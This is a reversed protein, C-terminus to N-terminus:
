NKEKPRLVLLPIPSSRLVKDAVSGLLARRLGGRGHTAIAVLDAELSEALETIAEAVSEAAGVHIDVDLGRRKLDGAIKELYEEGSLMAPELVSPLVPYIAPGFVTRTPIVHALTLSAGTTEALDAAPELVAEALASGDLPVLIHEFTLVDAPVGEPQEPHIVLIPHHTHRILADAVSGLWLRSMGTHGHTTMLIMDPRVREAYTALAEAVKRGELLTSDAHTGHEDLEEVLKELYQRESELHRSDYEAMDLGEFHFQTNSLLADPEYPVHVHTIHMDAGAARALGRALPLTRESFESGDLPVLLSHLM